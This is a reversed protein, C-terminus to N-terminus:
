TLTCLEAIEPYDYLQIVMVVTLDFKLVNENDGLSIMPVSAM